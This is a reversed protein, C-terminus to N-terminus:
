SILIDVLHRHEEELQQFVEGQMVGQVYCEAVIRFTDSSPRLLLPCSCGLIIAVVDGTQAVRPMIGVYGKETVALRRSWMWTTMRGLCRYYPESGFNLVGSDQYYSQLTRGGLTFLANRKLWLHINWKFSEDTDGTSPCPNPPACEEGFITVDLICEHSADAGLGRRDRDGVLARWLAERFGASDGYANACNKANKFDSVNAWDDDWHRTGSMGDIRDLLVGKVSLVSGDRVFTFSAALGNPADYEPQFNNVQLRIQKRLDPVWSPLSEDSFDSNMAEEGSEGCQVLFGLDGNGGEVYIWAKAFDMYLEGISLDHNPIIREAIAPELLSMIGYVKDVPKLCQALRCRYLLHRKNLKLGQKVDLLNQFDDCKEWQWLRVDQYAEYTTRAGSQLEQRVVSALHPDSYSTKFLHFSEYVQYLKKWTTVKRGCIITSDEGGMALEQIIWLRSWYDRMILNSLSDWITIGYIAFAERLCALLSESGLNRSVSVANIFDIAEDSGKAAEGLWVVVNAAQRYIDKMRKVCSDVEVKNGQDICVADIWVGGGDKVFSTAWLALLARKLNSQVIVNFGDIVIFDLDNEEGWTYSLAVFPVSSAKDRCNDAPNAANSNPRYNRLENHELHWNAFASATRCGDETCERVDDPQAFRLLRIECDSQELPRYEMKSYLEQEDPADLNLHIGDPAKLGGWRKFLKLM